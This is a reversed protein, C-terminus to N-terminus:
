NAGSDQLYTNQSASHHRPAVLSWLRSAYPTPKSATFDVQPKESRKRQVVGRSNSAEASSGIGFLDCKWLLQQKAVTRPLWIHCMHLTLPLEAGAVHRSIMAAHGVGHGELVSGAQQLLALGCGGCGGEGGNEGTLRPIGDGRM